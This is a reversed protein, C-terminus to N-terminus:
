ANFLRCLFPDLETDCEKLLWTPIPVNITQFNSLAAIVDEETIQKFASLTYETSTLEPEAAADNISLYATYYTTM